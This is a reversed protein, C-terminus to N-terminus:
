RRYTPCQALSWLYIHSIFETRSSKMTLLASLFISLHGCLSNSLISDPFRHLLQSLRWRFLHCQLPHSFYVSHLCLPFIIRPLSSLMELSELSRQSNWYPLDRLTLAHLASFPLHHTLLDSSVLHCHAQFVFCLFRSQLFYNGAIQFATHSNKFITLEALRPSTQTCAYIHLGQPSCEGQALKIPSPLSIFILNSGRSNQLIAM